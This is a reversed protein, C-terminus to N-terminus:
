YGLSAELKCEGRKGLTPTVSTHQWAQSREKQKQKEEGKWGQIKSEERREINKNKKCKNHTHIHTCLLRNGGEAMHIGPILSAGEPEADPVTVWQVPKEARRKEEKASFLKAWIHLFSLVNICFHLVQANIYLSSSTRNLEAQLLLCLWGEQKKMSWSMPPFFSSSTGYSAGASSACEAGYRVPALWAQHVYTDERWCTFWPIEGAMFSFKFSLKLSLFM